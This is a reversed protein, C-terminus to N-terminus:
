PVAPHSITDIDLTVAATRAVATGAFDGGV